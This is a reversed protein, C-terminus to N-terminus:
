FPSLKNAVAWLSGASVPEGSSCIGPLWCLLGTVLSALWLEATELLGPEERALGLATLVANPAQGVAQAVDWVGLEPALAAWLAWVLLPAGAALLAGRHSQLAAALRSSLAPPAPRRAGMNARALLLAIDAEDGCGEMAKVDFVDGHGHKQMVSTLTRTLAREKSLNQKLEDMIRFIAMMSNMIKGMKDAWALQDRASEANCAVQVCATLTKHMVKAKWFLDGAAAEKRKPDQMTQYAEFAGKAQKMLEDANRLADELAAQSQNAEQQLKKRRWPSVCNMLEKYMMETEIGNSELEDKRVILSGLAEKTKEHLEDNAKDPDVATMESMEDRPTRSDVVSSRSHSRSSRADSRLSRTSRSQDGSVSSQEPIPSLHETSRGGSNRRQRASM